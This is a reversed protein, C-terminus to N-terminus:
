LKFMIMHHTKKELQFSVMKVGFDSQYVIGKERILDFWCGFSDDTKTACILDGDTNVYKINNLFSNQIMPRHLFLWCRSNNNLDIICTRYFSSHM